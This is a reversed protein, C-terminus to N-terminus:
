RGVARGESFTREAYLKFNHLDEQLQKEPDSFIEAIIEGAKGAPPVYQMTVTVETEGYPLEKFTVQGSTTIDGQGRNNWAVRQNEEMRITEAEWEVQKGLPGEMVWHSTRDGTKRVSKINKMFNPFHEFNAWLNYVHSVPAKVIISRTIQDQM